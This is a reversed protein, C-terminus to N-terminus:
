SLLKLLVSFDEDAAGRDEALQLRERVAELFPLRRPGAAASALRMDKHMHKVSFQPSFDGARLKPEKLKAFASYGANRALAGFFVEDGIGARRAFTLAECLGELMVVINLNMALKLAAAKRPETAIVLRTESVLKLLPELAAILNPPGGLYLM